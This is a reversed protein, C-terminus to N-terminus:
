RRKDQRQGERDEGRRERQEKEGGEMLRRKRQQCVKERGVSGTRGGRAREHERSPGHYLSLYFRCMAYQIARNNSCHTAAAGAEHIKQHPEIKEFLTQTIGNANIITNDTCSCTSFLEYNM